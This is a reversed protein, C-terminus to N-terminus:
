SAGALGLAALVCAIIGAVLGSSAQISGFDLRSCM